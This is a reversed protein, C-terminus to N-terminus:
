IVIGESELQQRLGQRLRFLSVKVSARTLGMESAIDNVSCMYFYRKVFIKRKTAGLGALFNNIADRLIIDETADGKTDPIVESLEDLITECLISGENKRKKYRNLALNRSIKSLYASLVNPRTPPISSWTRLYTDNECEESDPANNLVNYAITYILRGYKKKTVSIADENREFYLDIIKGDEM